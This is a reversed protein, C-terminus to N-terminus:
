LYDLEDDDYDEDFDEVDFIVKESNGDDSNFPIISLVFVSTIGGMLIWFLSLPVDSFPYISDLTTFVDSMFQMFQIFFPFFKETM